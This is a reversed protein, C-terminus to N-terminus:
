RSLWRKTAQYAPFFLIMVAVCVAAPFHAWLPLSTLLCDLLAGHSAGADHEVCCATVQPFLWEAWGFGTCGDSLGDM